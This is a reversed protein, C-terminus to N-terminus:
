KDATCASDIIKDLLARRIGHTTRYAIYSVTERNQFHAIRWPHRKKVSRSDIGIVTGASDKIWRQQPSPASDDDSRQSSIILPADDMSGGLPFVFYSRSDADNFPRSEMNPPLTFLVSFGVRGSATRGDCPHIVWDSRKADELKLRVPASGPNGWFALPRYSPDEIRLLQGSISFAFRGKDDTLTQQRVPPEGGAIDSLVQAGKIPKSDPGVVNGSLALKAPPKSEIESGVETILLLSCCGLHGYGTFRVKGDGGTTEKGAAFMGTLTATVAYAPKDGKLAAILAYLRLFNEDKKITYPQGNLTVDVGPSRFNDNVMSTVIGPVDGGFAVWIGQDNGCPPGVLSFDEFHVSLTGRVRLIKGDFSGPHQALECYSVDLPGTQAGAQSAHFFLFVFTLLAIPLKRHLFM